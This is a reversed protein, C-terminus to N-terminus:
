LWMQGSLASQKIQWAMGVNPGVFRLYSCKQVVHLIAERVTELGNDLCELEGINRYPCTTEDCALIPDDAPGIVELESDVVIIGGLLNSGEFGM